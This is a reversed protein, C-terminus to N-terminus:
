VSIAHTQLLLIALGTPPPPMPCKSCVVHILTPLLTVDPTKTSYSYIESVDRFAVYILSPFYDFPISTSFTWCRWSLLCVQLLWFFLLHQDVATFKTKM